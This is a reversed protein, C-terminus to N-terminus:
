ARGPGSLLRPGGPRGRCGSAPWFTGDFYRGNVHGNILTGVFGLERV